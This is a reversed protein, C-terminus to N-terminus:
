TVTLTAFGVIQLHLAAAAIQVTAGPTIGTALGGATITAGAQASWSVTSTLDQTSGDSYHGMASFQQTGNPAVTATLPTVTILQLTVLSSGGCGAFAMVSLISTVLLLTKMSVKGFYHAVDKWSTLVTPM